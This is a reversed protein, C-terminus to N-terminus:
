GNPGVSFKKERPLLFLQVMNVYTIWFLDKFLSLILWFMIIPFMNTAWKNYKEIVSDTVWFVRLRFIKHEIFLSSSDIHFSANM